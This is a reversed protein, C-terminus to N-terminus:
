NFYENIASVVKEAFKNQNSSNKIKQAESPNSVFGAEFLVTPVNTERTIYLNHDSVPNVRPGIYDLTQLKKYLINAFEKSGQAVKSLTKDLVVLSGDINVKVNKGSSNRYTVYTEEEGNVMKKEEKIFTYNKSKIRVYLGSKDIKYRYSSWHISYGKMSSNLSSDHHVSICLDPMVANVKEDRQKLPAIAEISPNRTYVVNYGQEQLKAAIKKVLQNNLQYEYLGNRVAGPDLPYKGEHGPDLMITISRNKNIILGNSLWMPKYISSNIEKEDIIKCTDTPNKIQEIKTAGGTKIEIFIKYDGISTLKTIPLDIKYGSYNYNNVGDGKANTVDTRKVDTANYRAIEKGSSNKIVIDKEVSGESSINLNNIFIWGEIYLNNGSWYAKNTSQQTTPSSKAVLLINNSWKPQYIKNSIAKNQLNSSYTITPNTVATTKSFGNSTVEIYISYNGDDGLSNIPVDVKYGSYNYNYIENGKGETIDIRRTDYAKFRAVENNSSNKIIIHKEVDSEIAMDIEELIIWGEIHLKNGNWDVKETSQQINLTYSQREIIFKKDNWKPYYSVNNIGKKRTDKLAGKAPNMIEQQLTIGNAIIEIYLNYIGDSTLKDIPIDAEYGSYDYNYKNQGRAKTINTKKIDTADYRVIEEGSVNKVLIHKEVSAETSINIGELYVWGEIHLDNDNWYAKETSQIFHISDTTVENIIQSEDLVSTEEENAMIPQFSFFVIM